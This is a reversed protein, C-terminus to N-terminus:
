TIRHFTNRLQGRQGQEAAEGRKRRQRSIHGVRHRQGLKLRLVARGDVGAGAGEIVAPRLREAAGGPMFGGGKVKRGAPKACHAVFLNRAPCFLMLQRRCRGDREVAVLGIVPRHFGTQLFDTEAVNRQEAVSQLRGVAKLAQGMKFLQNVRLPDVAELLTFGHGGRRRTVPFHNFGGPACRLKVEQAVNGARAIDVGVLHFALRQPIFDGVVPQFRHQSLVPYAM